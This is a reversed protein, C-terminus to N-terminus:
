AEEVYEEATGASWSVVVTATVDVLWRKGVPDTVIATERQEDHEDEIAQDAWRIAAMEISSADVEISGKRCLDYDEVKFKM